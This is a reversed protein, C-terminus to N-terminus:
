EDPLTVDLAEVPRRRYRRAFLSSAGEYALWGVFILVLPVSLWVSPGGVGTGPPEPIRYFAFIVSAGIMGATALNWGTFAALMLGMALYWPLVYSSTLFWILFIAAASVTMSRYDKVRLLLIITLVAFIALFLLHVRANAVSEAKIHTMGGHRLVRQYQFSVLRPISAASYLKSMHSTTKFIKLSSLFPLYLLIPVGIVVAGARVLRKLPAGQKDRIYLVLMPAVALVAVIKVMSAVMVLAIGSLLYGKRYLLFGGLLLAIMLADNHGGGLLHMVLIPSWASIALAMNERGPSVRKALWYVLPLCAAYSAVALLKFGLVNAAVNDGAVKAILYAPYNFVPGYVSANFKWGVLPYFLDNPRAHPILLFPNSHYVTMSRGFFVYSYVDRSQFPPTFVFLLTFAAFAGAIIFTVSRRRDRRVLYIAAIWMVNLALMLCIFLWMRSGASIGALHLWRSPWVLPGGYTAGKVNYVLTLRPNLAMAVLVWYGLASLLAILALLWSRARPNLLEKKRTEDM